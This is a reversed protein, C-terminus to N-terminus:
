FPTTRDGGRTERGGPRQPGTALTWAGEPTWVHIVQAAREALHAVGAGLDTQCQTGVRRDGLHLAHEPLDIQQQHHADVGTKASLGETRLSELLDAGGCM